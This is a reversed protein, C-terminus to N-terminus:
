KCGLGTVYDVPAQDKAISDAYDWIASPYGGSKAM